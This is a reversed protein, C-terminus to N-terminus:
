AHTRNEKGSLQRKIEGMRTLDGILIAGCLTGDQYFRKEFAQQSQRPNVRFTDAPLAPEMRRGSVGEGAVTGCSFLATGMTNLVVDFSRPAFAKLAGKACANEAALKATEIAHTWLQPNPWPAEICDGAAFIDPDSTQLCSDVQVGRGCALGAEGALRRNPVAGACLVAVEAPVTKGTSLCVGTLRGFENAQYSDATCGTYLTIGAEQLRDAMFSAAEEDLQRSMLRPAAEIVTVHGCYKKLEWALEMGIVGAGIVVANQAVSAFRHISKVSTDTRLTLVGDPLAAGSPMFPRAGLTYILKDYIVSSGDGLYVRHDRRDILSAEKGTILEIQQARYWADDRILLPESRFTRFLTKSLMTRNYAPLPEKGIVTIQADKQLSRLTEAATLGAIGCGLIM